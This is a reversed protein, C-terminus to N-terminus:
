LLLMADGFSYFRYRERIAETYAKLILEKGGFASIMMILTSKPLHFNTIISDTIKFDFGPYIFINTEGVGPAVKGSVATTELVRVSTTGVAIIKKGAAKVSNITEASEKSVSYLESHMHHEEIRETKVPRFTDLGVRLTVPAFKIEKNAVRAMLEPTFHLGATPAAVSGKNEAYVTQYRQGENDALKRTIYPPLPMEGVKDIADIFEGECDFSVIREGGDLCKEITATILGNGISVQTGPRLRRGPRVLAEWYNGEIQELLFIEVKAGTGVKEGKLRAPIVKTNNVVLCDGADLYDTIDTFRRHEIIGTDRHVVM